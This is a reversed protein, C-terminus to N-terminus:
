PEEAVFGPDIVRRAQRVFSALPADFDADSGSCGPIFIPCKAPPSQLTLVTAQRMQDLSQVVYSARVYFGGESGGRKWLEFILSGGPLVPNMQSGPIWWNMGLLSGVSNINSDHGALIVVHEGLPGVAGPVSQGLAAQELTDVIHSALNSAEIKAIYPTRTLLGFAVEHLALMDTLVKGDVQGWGVDEAPKGDAYELLLSETCELAAWLPGQLKIAYKAPDPVIASPANFPSGEPPKGDPGFMISHLEAFQTAYAREVNAPDGGMTGLAAAAALAKDPHGVPVEIPRFLPDKMGDPLAHTDPEGAPVLAKGLITGTNRTRQDNDARIYVLAGDKTPDGSLLGEDIFRARYYDGMLAILMNGHPTQIGPAVEWKPWPKSALQAMQADSPLPARVGHRTLVIALQLQDGTGTQARSIPMWALFLALAVCPTALLGLAPNSHRAKM